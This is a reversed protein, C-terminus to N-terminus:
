DKFHYCLGVVFAWVFISGWSLNMVPIRPCHALDFTRWIKGLVGGIIAILGAVIIVTFMVQLLFNTLKAGISGGKRKAM